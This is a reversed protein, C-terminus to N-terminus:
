PSLVIADGEPTLRTEIGEARCIRKLYALIEDFLADNRTVMRPVSDDGIFAPLFETRSVAGDAVAL